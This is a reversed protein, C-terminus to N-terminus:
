KLEIPHEQSGPTVTYTLGSQEPTNYKAPIAVTELMPMSTTSRAGKPWAPPTSVAITVPGVPVRAVSYRGSSEIAGTIPPKDKAIFAVTGTPLPKGKYTVTGSVTGTPDGGCGALAFALWAATCVGRRLFFRQLVHIIM